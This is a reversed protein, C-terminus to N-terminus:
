VMHFYEKICGEIAEIDDRHFHPYSGEKDMEAKCNERDGYVKCILTKPDCLPGEDSVMEIKPFDSYKMGEVIVIDLDDCFELMKEFKEWSKRNVSFQTNSFIISATAGAQTYRYTDTGEHDMTYEHADHKIVGVSYGQCDITSVLRSILQTKGTNKIGCVCFIKSKSIKKSEM